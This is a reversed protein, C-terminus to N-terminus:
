RKIENYASTIFSWEYSTNSGKYLSRIPKLRIIEDLSKGENVLKAIVKRSNVLMDRYELLGQRNSNEGHGPILITEDDCIKLINDVAKIMGAVTGGHSYDIFPVGYLVFLDGVHIVNKNRFFYIADGSSHAASYHIADVINDNFYLRLTDRFCIKPLYKPIQPPVILPKKGSLTPEEWGAALVDRTNEQAIIIAGKDCLNKNDGIHDHHFNTQLIYRVPQNSFTSIVSDLKESKLGTDIVMIGDSGDVATINCVFGRILYVGKSVNKVSYRNKSSGQAFTLNSIVLLCFITISSCKIWIKSKM